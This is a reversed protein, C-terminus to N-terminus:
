LLKIYVDSINKEESIMEENTSISAVCVVPLSEKTLSLFYIKKECIWWVSNIIYFGLFSKCPCCFLKLVDRL